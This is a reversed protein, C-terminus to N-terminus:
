ILLIALLFILARTILTLGLESGPPTSYLQSEKVLLIGEKVLSIM